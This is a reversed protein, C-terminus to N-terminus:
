IFILNIVNLKKKRWENCSQTMSLIFLLFLFNWAFLILAIYLYIFPKYMFRKISHNGTLTEFVMNFCCNMNNELSFFFWISINLINYFCNPSVFSLKSEIFIAKRTVLRASWKSKDDLSWFSWSNSAVTFVFGLDRMRFSLCVVLHIFKLLTYMHTLVTGWPRRNM